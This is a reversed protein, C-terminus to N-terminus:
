NSRIKVFIIVLVVTGIAIGVVAGVLLPDLTFGPTGLSIVFETFGSYNNGVLISLGSDTIDEPLIIDAQDTLTQAGNVAITTALVNSASDLIFIGDKSGLRPSLCETRVSLTMDEGANNGGTIGTFTVDIRPTMELLYEFAARLEEWLPNIGEEVPNFYGYIGEWERIIHTSNNEIIVHAEETDVSGNHYVEFTIPVTTGREFYMWEGWGGSLGTEFSRTSPLYGLHENFGDPLIEDFDFTM